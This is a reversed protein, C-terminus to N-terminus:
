LLAVEPQAIEGDNFSCPPPEGNFTVQYLCSRYSRPRFYRELVRCFPHQESLTLALYDSGKRERALACASVVLAIFQDPKHHNVALHSLYSFPLQRGAPPLKPVRSLPSAANIWPRLFRLATSYGDIVCQKYSSQDWVAACATIGSRDHVVLFDDNRLGPCFDANALEEASWASAYQLQKSHYRLCEAIKQPSGGIQPRVGDLSRSTRTPILYSVLEQAPLFQPCGPHPAELFRKAAHNGTVITSFYVSAIGREHLARVFKLAASIKHGKGRYPWDLRLQSLYGAEVAEGNVYVRRVSVEGFGAIRGLKEDRIVIVFHRLSGSKSAKFFNPERQFSVSISGAVPNDRLIRLLEPNDQPTALDVQM